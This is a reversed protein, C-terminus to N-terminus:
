IIIEPYLPFRTLLDLVRQKAEVVAKEPTIAKAQSKNGTKEDVAPQTSKLIKAIIKAIEKMENAKLGLTTLAAVGMRVGSTYWPGNPDFPIMNRSTTIGAEKLANEGQRGTIKLSSLDIVILHNDTGGTVISIGEKILEEALTKANEVIQHAYTSFEKQSAEKFAIVKAAIVHPLPGGLVNPCGKNVAEKFEEKCLVMGGRPGRLTKHTTTTVIHAHAVPDFNGTFVGGAVLGAFHAMDVMFVAGVEDAIARMKAFDILRSYASYGALLILPKERRAIEAITDYNLRHTKPDVGYTIAKMMKASVNYRYGHTLHGGSSLALGLIKQNCLLQRLNEFEEASLADLNKKNLRELEKNQIRQTLIAWFAVLNADAGSHPQVYAHDAKFLAKALDCAEQEIADVFECGAYFRHQPYGECYKDTLLNGMALQVSLSSFNESAILKLNSRQSKLENLINDAVSPQVEKLHELVAIYASAASNKKLTSM